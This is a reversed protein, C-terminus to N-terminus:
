LNSAQYIHYTHYSTQLRHIHIEESSVYKHKRYDLHANYHEEAQCM